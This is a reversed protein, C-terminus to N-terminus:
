EGQPLTRQFFSKVLILLSRIPRIRLGNEQSDPNAFNYTYGGQLYISMGLMNKIDEITTGSSKADDARVGGAFTFTLLIAMAIVLYVKKM